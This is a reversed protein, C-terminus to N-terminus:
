QFFNIRNSKRCSLQKTEQNSDYRQKGTKLHTDFIFEGINCTGVASYLLLWCPKGQQPLGWVLWFNAWEGVQFFGRWPLEMSFHVHPSFFFDKCNIEDKCINYRIGMQLWNQCVNLNGAFWYVWGGCKKVIFFNGCFRDVHLKFNQIKNNKCLYSTNKTNILIFSLISKSAVYKFSWKVMILSGVWFIEISHSSPKVEKGYSMKLPM